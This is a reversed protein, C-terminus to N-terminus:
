KVKYIRKKTGKYDLIREVEYKPEGKIIMPGLGEKAGKGRYDELM